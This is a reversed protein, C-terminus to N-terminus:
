LNLPQWILVWETDNGTVYVTVQVHVLYDYHTRHEQYEAKVYLIMGKEQAGGSGLSRASKESDFPSNAARVQLSRM